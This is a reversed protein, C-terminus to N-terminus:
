MFLSSMEGTKDLDAGLRDPSRRAHLLQSARSGLRRLGLALGLAAAVHPWEASHLLPLLLTKPKLWAAPGSFLM